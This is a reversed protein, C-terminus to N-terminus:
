NRVFVRCPYHDRRPRDGSIPFANLVWGGAGYYVSVTLLENISDRTFFVNIGGDTLLPGLVGDKQGQLVAIVEYLTVEAKAGGRDNVVSQENSCDLPSSYKLTSGPFPSELKGEFLDMFSEGYINEPPLSGPKKINGVFFGKSTPQVVVTGTPVSFRRAPSQANEALSTIGLIAIIL